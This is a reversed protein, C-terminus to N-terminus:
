CIRKCSSFVFLNNVHFDRFCRKLNPVNGDPLVSPRKSSALSASQRAAKPTSPKKNANTDVVNGGEAVTFFPLEGLSQKIVNMGAEFEKASQSYEVIIWLACTAVVSSRMQNSTDVLREMISLRLKSNTEIFERFCFVIDIASSDGLFNMLLHVVTSVVEPFKLACSHIAQVLMQRYENNRELEKNRTKLVEKKLTMVAEDINRPTIIDLAIDLIIKRIELNPCTLARLIDMIMEVMVEKQSVKLERVATPASSLFVLAGACEYMVVTSPSNLLSIDIKFYKGKEGPNTRFVKRILELVEM